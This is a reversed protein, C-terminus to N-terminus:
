QHVFVEGLRSGFFNVRPGIVFRLRLYIITSSVILKFFNYLDPMKTKFQSWSRVSSDYKPDIKLLADTLEKTSSEGPWDHVAINKGHMTMEGFRTRLQEMTENIASAFADRATPRSKLENLDAKRLKASFKGSPQKATSSSTAVQHTTRVQSIEEESSDDEDEKSESYYDASPMVGFRNKALSKLSTLTKMKRQGDDYFCEYTSHSASECVLEIEGNCYVPQDDKGSFKEVFKWGENGIGVDEDAYKSRNDKSWYEKEGNDFKITYQVDGGSGNIEIVKGSYWGM